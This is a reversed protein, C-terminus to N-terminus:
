DSRTITWCAAVTRQTLVAGLPLVSLHGPPSLVVESDPAIGAATLLWRQLASLGLGALRHLTEEIIANWDRWAEVTIPHDPEDGTRRFKDFGGVWGPWDGDDDTILDGNGSLLEQINSQTLNPLPLVFIEPMLSTDADSRLLLAAGEDEGALITVFAGGVPLAAALAQVDVEAPEHLSVRFAEFTEDVIALALQYQRWDENHSWDAEKQRAAANAEEMNIPDAQYRQWNEHDYASTQWCRAAADAVANAAQWAGHKIQVTQMQGQDASKDGIWDIATAQIARAKHVTKMARLPEEGRLWALATRSAM